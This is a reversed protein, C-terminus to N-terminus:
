RCEGHGGNQSERKAYPRGRCNERQYLLHHQPRQRDRLGFLEPTDAIGDLAAVRVSVRLSIAVLPRLVVPIQKRPLRVLKKTRAGRRKLLQSRELDALSIGVQAHPAGTRRNRDCHGVALVDRAIEKLREANRRPASTKEGIGVVALSRRRDGHQTEVGPLPLISRVRRHDSRRVMEVALWERNDTDGRRAEESCFDSGRVHGIEPQWQRGLREDSACCGAQLIWSQSPEVHGAADAGAGIWFSELRLKLHLQVFPERAM